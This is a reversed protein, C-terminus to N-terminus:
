KRVQLSLLAYIGLKKIVECILIRATCNSRMSRSYLGGPGVLWSGNKVKVLVLGLTKVAEIFYLGLFGGSGM